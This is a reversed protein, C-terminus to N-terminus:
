KLMSINLSATAILTIQGELTKRNGQLSYRAKQALESRHTASLIDKNAWSLQWNACVKCTWRLTIGSRRSNSTRGFEGVSGALNCRRHLQKGALVSVASAARVTELEM